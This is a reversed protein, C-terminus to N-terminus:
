SLSTYSIVGTCPPFHPPRARTAVNSSIYTFESERLRQYFQERKVDFEHNGFTVYDLGMANLVAVMQKGALREGEVRATGIASPSYFDGALFSYTNPQEAKLRELLTAVRALGGWKGGQM